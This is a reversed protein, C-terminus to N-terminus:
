TVVEEDVVHPVVVQRASDRVRPYLVAIAGVALAAGVVQAIVFAPVSSPEIGAFSNSLM